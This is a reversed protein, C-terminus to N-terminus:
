RCSNVLLNTDVNFFMVASFCHRISVSNRSFNDSLVIHGPPGAKRMLGHWEHIKGSSSKWCTGWGLAGVCSWCLTAGLLSCLTPGVGLIIVNSSRQRIDSAGGMMFAGFGVVFRASLVVCHTWRRMVRLLTGPVTGGIVRASGQRGGGVAVSAVGIRCDGQSPLVAWRM